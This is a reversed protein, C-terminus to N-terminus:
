IFPRHCPVCSSCPNRLILCRDPAYILIKDAFGYLMLTALRDFDTYFGAQLYDRGTRSM